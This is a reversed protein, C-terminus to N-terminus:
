SVPRYVLISGEFSRGRDEYLRVEYTDGALLQGAISSGGRPSGVLGSTLGVGGGRVPEAELGATGGDFAFGVLVPEADAEVRRTFPEGDETATLAGELEWLRGDREVVRDVSTGAVTTTAPEPYAGIGIVATPDDVEPGDAGRTLYARLTHEGRALGREQSTWGGPLDAMGEDDCSGRSYAPRGDLEVSLWLGRTAATCFTAVRVVQRQDLDLRVTLQSPDAGDVGSFGAALLEEGFASPRFLAVDDPGVVAGPAPGTQDYVALGVEADPGLGDLVVRLGGTGPYVPVPPQVSGSGLVRAVGRRHDLLTASGGDLDSAALSVVRLEESPELAVRVTREGTGVTVEDSLEYGRGLVSVTAPVEQGGVTRPGEAPDPGDGGGVPGLTALGVGAALVVAALAGAATRRRRRLGRVREHVAVVRPSAGPDDVARARDELTSRLDDVTSM